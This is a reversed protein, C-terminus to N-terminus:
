RNTTLNHAPPTQDGVKRALNAQYLTKTLLSAVAHAEDPTSFVLDAQGNSIEAGIVPEAVVHGSVFLQVQQNVHQRTFERFMEAKADTFQLHIAYEANTGPMSQTTVEAIGAVDNPIITFQPKGKPTSPTNVVPADNKPSCAATIMLIALCGAWPKLFHKM